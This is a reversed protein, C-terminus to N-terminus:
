GCYQRGHYYTCFFLCSNIVRFSFFLLFIKSSPWCKSFLSVLLHPDGKIEGKHGTKRRSKGRPHVGTISCRLKDMALVRTSIHWREPWLFCPLFDSHAPLHSPIKSLLSEFFHIRYNQHSHVCNEVQSWIACTCSLGLGAGCISFFQVSIQFVHM